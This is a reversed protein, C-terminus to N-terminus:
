LIGWRSSFAVACGPPLKGHFFLELFEHQLHVPSADSIGLRQALELADKNNGNQSVLSRILRPSSLFQNAMCRLVKRRTMRFNSTSM